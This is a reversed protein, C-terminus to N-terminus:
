IWYMIYFYTLLKQIIVLNHMSSSCGFIKNAVLFFSMYPRSFAHDVLTENNFFKKLGMTCFSGNIKLFPCVNYKKFNIKKFIWEFTMKYDYLLLLTAYRIYSVYLAYIRLYISIHVYISSCYNCYKCYKCCPLSNKKEKKKSKNQKTMINSKNNHKSQTQKLNRKTYM